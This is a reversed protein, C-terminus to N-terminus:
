NGAIFEHVDGQKIYQKCLKESKGYVYHDSMDVTFRSAPPKRGLAECLARTYHASNGCCLGVYQIGLEKCRLGFEYIDSRSSHACDLEAYFLTKGNTPDTLSQFTPQEKTTRYPVPVAAVPVKVIKQIEEILPLITAPGRVCNLGVVDAGAAELRQFCDTLVVGDTTAPNGNVTRKHWALTVVSPLGRGYKKIAEVALKAEIFDTFTEAIIFDAGEEVIWDIQEKFMADIRAECTPDEPNYINTNCINGAMLTSTKNAVERALRLAKRNLDELDSERNILAMKERHGYYTFAQVVDSGAHVFEEHQLRVLDPHEIVVEPVFAGARLYGRKEFNFLYGEACVVTEKDRLRELLGKVKTSM